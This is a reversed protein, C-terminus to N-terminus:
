FKRIKINIGSSYGEYDWSGLWVITGDTCNLKINHDSYESGNFSVKDPYEVSKITKGVLIDVNTEKEEKM